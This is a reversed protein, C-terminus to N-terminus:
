KEQKPPILVDPQDAAETKVALEELRYAGCGEDYVIRYYQGKEPMRISIFSRGASAAAVLHGTFPELVDATVTESGQATKEVRRIRARCVTDGFLPLSVQLGPRLREPHVFDPPLELQRSRIVTTHIRPMPSPMAKDPGKAEASKTATDATAAPPDSAAMLCSWQPLLLLWSCILFCCALLPTYKRM